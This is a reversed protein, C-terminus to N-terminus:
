GIRIVANGDAITDGFILAAKLDTVAGADLGTLDSVKFTGSVFAWTHLHAEGYESSAQAGYFHNGSADTATDVGLIARAPDTTTTDAYAGWLDTSAVRGLITGAALTLSAALKVPQREANDPYNLPELKKASWTVAATTPM